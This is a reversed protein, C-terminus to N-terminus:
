REDCQMRVEFDALIPLHDSFGGEYKFGYYTRFPRLGYWTKDKTLLFPPAFLRISKPQLHIPSSTDLFSANIFMQDLQTWMGQYKHSGRPANPLPRSFLNYLIPSKGHITIETPLREANYPLAALGETISRNEPTDNFDGMLILYPSRRIQILSDCVSRLTRAADMRDRESEKEGGYRSPFHCVCVDLTDGTILRGWVHLLDRTNKHHKGSFRIPISRHSLYGFKDRQYLLAVRIGRRDSTQGACFRYDQLRLPTRHLLHTLVSDNEIECLGILAPTDWEGAATIVKAIQQLKHYYRKSTWHRNGEPLFERDDCIPDPSTDFFNEVNYSMVRFSITSSSTQVYRNQTKGARCFESWGSATWGAEASGEGRCGYLNGIGKQLPFAGVGLLFFCAGWRRRFIKPFSLFLGALWGNRFSSFTFLKM